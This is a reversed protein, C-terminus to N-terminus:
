TCNVQLAASRRRWAKMLLAPLIRSELFRLNERGSVSALDSVVESLEGRRKLVFVPEFTVILGHVTYRAEFYNTGM